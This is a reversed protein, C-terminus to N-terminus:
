DKKDGAIGFMKACNNREAAREASGFGFGSYGSRQM